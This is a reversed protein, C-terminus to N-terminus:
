VSNDTFDNVGTGYISADINIPDWLVNTGTDKYNMLAQPFTPTELTNKDLFNAEKV